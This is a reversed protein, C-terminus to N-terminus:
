FLYKYQYRLLIQAIVTLNYMHTHMYAHMYKWKNQKLLKGTRM